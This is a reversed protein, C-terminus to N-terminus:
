VSWAQAGGPVAPLTGCVNHAGAQREMTVFQFNLGIVVCLGFFSWLSGVTSNLLQLCECTCSCESWDLILQM